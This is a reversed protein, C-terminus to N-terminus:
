EAILVGYFRAEYNSSTPRDNKVSIKLQDGAVLKRGYMEGFPFNFECFLEAGFYTRKSSIISGNVKVDFKGLNEGGAEAKILYLAKGVPVTYSSIDASTGSGSLSAVEDFQSYVFPISVCNPIVTVGYIRASFDAATPRSNTAYIEITDGEQIRRGYTAGVSFDFVTNLSAGFYTRKKGISVSNVFIEYEAINTGSLEAYKLYFDFGVPVTYSLLLNSGTASLIEEFQEYVTPENCGYVNVVSVSIDNIADIIEQQKQETAGNVSIRQIFPM